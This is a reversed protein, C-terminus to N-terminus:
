RIIVNKDNRIKISLLPLFDGIALIRPTWRLVSRRKISLIIYSLSM